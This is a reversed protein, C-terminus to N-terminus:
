CDKNYLSVLNVGEPVYNMLTVMNSETDIYFINTDMVSVMTEYDLENNFFVLEKEPNKFFLKEMMPQKELDLTQVWMSIGNNKEEQINRVIYQVM